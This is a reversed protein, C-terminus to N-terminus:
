IFMISDFRGSGDRGEDEPSSHVQLDRHMGQSQEGLTGSRAESRFQDHWRSTQVSHVEFLYLQILFIKLLNFINKSGYKFNTYM